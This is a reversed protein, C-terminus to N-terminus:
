PKNMKDFMKRAEPDLHKRIEDRMAAPDSLKQMDIDDDDKDAAKDAPPTPDLCSGKGSIMKVLKGQDPSHTCLVADTAGAPITKSCSVSMSTGAVTTSVACDIQCSADAKYPNSIVADVSKGDPAIRCAFGGPKPASVPQTAAGETAHCDGKASVVKKYYPEPKDFACLSQDKALPPTTGGCAVQVVGIKTDVQCAVQCTKADSSPNDAVVNISKGDPSIVCGAQAPAALVVAVSAAFAACVISNTM